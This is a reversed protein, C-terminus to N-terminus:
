QVEAKPLIEAHANSFKKTVQELDMNDITNQDKLDRAIMKAIDAKFDSMDLKKQETCQWNKVQDIEVKCTSPDVTVGVTSEEDPDFPIGLLFKKLNTKGAREQGLLMIRGRYVQVSGDRLAKQYAAEARPGQAQIEQPVHVLILSM